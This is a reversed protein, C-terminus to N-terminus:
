STMCSVVTPWRPDRTAFIGESGWLPVSVVDLADIRALEAHAAAAWALPLGDSVDHLRVGPLALTQPREALLHVDHGLAALGAALEGTARSLGSHPLTAVARSVLAVRM